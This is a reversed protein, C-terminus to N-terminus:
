TQEKQLDDLVHEVARVQCMVSRLLTLVVVRQTEVEDRRRYDIRKM